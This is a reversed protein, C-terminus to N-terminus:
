ITLYEQRFIKEINRLYELEKFQGSHSVRAKWDNNEAIRTYYVDHLITQESDSSSCITGISGYIIIENEL